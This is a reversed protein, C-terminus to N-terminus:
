TPFFSCYAALIINKTAPKPIDVHAGIIGIIFSRKCIPASINPKNNNHIPTLEKKIIGIAPNHACFNPQLFTKRTIPKHMPTSIIINDM